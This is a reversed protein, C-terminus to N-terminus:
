GNRRIVVWNEDQEYKELQDRPVIVVINNATSNLEAIKDTRKRKMWVGFFWKFAEVSIWIVVGIAVILFVSKWFAPTFGFVQAQNAADTAANVGGVTAVAGTIKKWMSKLFTPHEEKEVAVNSESTVKTEAAFTSDGQKQIATQTEETVAKPQPPDSNTPQQDDATNITETVTQGSHGNTPTGAPDAASISDRLIKEFRRAYKALLEAKDKGNIIRRAEVYDAFQGKIYDSLKKGTFMGLHMGRSLIDFATEPELAKEPTAAIGFKEYNKKWTLQVYGRGYYGSLWYRDQNARGKSGPKSRYEKIPRFTWATEHGITSLAYAIHRVDKWRPDNEFSTLLFELADVREQTLELPEDFAEDLFERVGDFFTKHDIKSPM